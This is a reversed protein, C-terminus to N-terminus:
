FMRWPLLTAARFSVSIVGRIGDVFECVLEGRRKEEPAGLFNALNTLLIGLCTQNISQALTSEWSGTPGKEKVSEEDEDEDKRRTHPFYPCLIQKNGICSAM